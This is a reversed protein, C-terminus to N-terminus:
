QPPVTLSFDYAHSAAADTNTVQVQVIEDPIMIEQTEPAVPGGRTSLIYRQGGLEDLTRIVPQLKGTADRPNFHWTANGACIRQLVFTDVASPALTRNFANASQSGVPFTIRDSDGSQLVAWVVASLNGASTVNLGLNMFPGRLPTRVVLTTQVNVRWADAGLLAAGGADAFHSVTLIGAGALPTVIVSLSRWNSAPVIGFPHNGPPLNSAGFPFQNASQSVPSAQWDPYDSVRADYSGAGGPGCRKCGGCCICCFAAIVAICTRSVRLSAPMMM